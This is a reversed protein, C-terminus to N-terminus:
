RGAMKGIMAPVGALGPGRWLVLTLIPEDLTTMAHPQDGGHQKAGGAHIRAADAGEAPFEASGSVVFYLEEAEHRHWDYYLGAGWYAIYARADECHFHGSPGWLEMWAYRSLFTAGVEAESYTQRWHASPAARMIADAFAKTDPAPAGPERRMHEMFPLSRPPIDVPQLDSPPPAFAALVPTRRILALAEDRLDALPDGGTETM